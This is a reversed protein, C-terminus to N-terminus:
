LTNMSNNPDDHYLPNETVQEHSFLRTKEVSNRAGTSATRTNSSSIPAPKGVVNFDEANPRVFSNRIGGVMSARIDSFDLDNMLQRADETMRVAMEKAEGVLWVIQDKAFIYLFLILLVAAGISVGIIIYILSQTSLPSTQVYNCTSINQLNILHTVTTLCNSYCTIDPNNSFDFTNLATDNCIEVPIAGKFYNNPILLMYMAYMSGWYTPISGTFTNNSLQLVQVNIWNNMTPFSGSLQNDNLYVANMRELINLESPVHGKFSNGQLNLTMMYSLYSLSSPITGTIGLYPLNIEYVTTNTFLIDDQNTSHGGPNAFGCYVGFWSCFEGIPTGSSTCNWGGLVGSAALTPINTAQYLDCIAIEEYSVIVQNCDITNGKIFYPVTSLCNPYCTINPNHTIDIDTLSQVGCLTSPVSGTFENYTVTLSILNSLLGISTPISKDFSNDNLNISTLSFM